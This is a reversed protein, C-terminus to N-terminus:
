GSRPWALAPSSAWCRLHKMAHIGGLGQRHPGHQWRFIELWSHKQFLTAEDFKWQDGYFVNVSYRDVLGFLRALLLVFVTTVTLHQLKIRTFVDKPPFPGRNQWGGLSRALQM